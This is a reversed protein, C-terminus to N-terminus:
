LCLTWDANCACLNSGLLEVARVPVTTSGVCVATPPASPSTWAHEHRPASRAIETTGQPTTSCHWGELQIRLPGMDRSIAISDSRYWM